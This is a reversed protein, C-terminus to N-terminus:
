ARVADADAAITATMEEEIDPYLELVEASVRLAEIAREFDSTGSIAFLGEADISLADFNAEDFLRGYTFLKPRCAISFGNGLLIHRNGRREEAEAIADDFSLVTM